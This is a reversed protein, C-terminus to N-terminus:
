GNRPSNPFPFSTSTISKSGALLLPSQRLLALLRGHLTVRQDQPALNAPDLPQQRFAHAAVVPQLLDGTLDIPLPNASPPDVFATSDM